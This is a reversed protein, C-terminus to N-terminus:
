VPGAASTGQQAPTPRAHLVAFLGTPIVEHLHFGTGALLRQWESRGRVRGGINTLLM